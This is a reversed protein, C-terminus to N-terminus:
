RPHRYLDADGAGANFDGGILAPRQGGILTQVTLLQQLEARRALRNMAHKYLAERKYLRVDTEAGHLHVSAVEMVSNDEFQITVSLSNPLNGLVSRVIRGRTIISCEWRGAVHEDVLGGYLELAVQRLVDPQASEQFLVVDPEWAMVERPAQPNIYGAKCNFTVVRRVRTGDPAPAPVGPEPRPQWSRLLPKTEDSFGLM